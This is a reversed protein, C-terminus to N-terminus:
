WNGEIYFMDYVFSSVDTKLYDIGDHFIVTCLSKKFLM